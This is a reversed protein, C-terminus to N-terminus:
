QFREPHIFRATAEFADAVRPGPRLVEYARLLHVRRDRVAPIVPFASWFAHVAEAAAEESGMTTDIIVEPASAIAAELSLHPWAGGAGAAVNRGGALEILEHQFTGAGVAILPSRGVVMLVSRPPAGAVRARVRELRQGIRAALATGSAEDGLARAIAVTATLIDAVTQPDVVVVKLGLRQLTEVPNRNGPTPVGIVVDPRLAVIAEVNPTLFTGVRAIRAADPPYDCYTSVGVLRDGRGLAFITETVSPALSVVRRVEARARTALALALFAVAVCAWHHIVFSSHHIHFRSHPIQFGSHLDIM